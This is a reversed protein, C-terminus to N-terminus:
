VEGTGNRVSVTMNDRILKQGRVVVLTGEDVGSAIEVKGDQREDAEVKRERATKGEVVFVYTGSLREVLAAQPVLVVNKKEGLNLRVNVFLGPAFRRGENDVVGAVALSRSDPSIDPAIYSVRGKAKLSPAGNAQIEFSQGATAQSWLREPIRFEVRLRSDDYIQGLPKGATVLAGAPLAIRTIRGDFPARITYNRRKAQKVALDTEAVALKVKSDELTLATSTGRKILTSVRGFDAKAADLRATSAKLDADAVAADLEILIDGARVSAGDKVVVTEIQGDTQTAIDASRTAVLEGYASFSQELSGRVARAVTVEQAADASAPPATEDADVRVGSLYHIALGSVLLGAFLAYGLTSRMPKKSRTRLVKVFFSIGPKHLVIPISLLRFTYIKNQALSYIDFTL